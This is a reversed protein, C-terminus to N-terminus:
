SECAAISISYFNGNIGGLRANILAPHRGTPSQFPIVYTTGAEVDARGSFAPESGGQPLRLHIDLHYPGTNEATVLAVFYDFEPSNPVLFDTHWNNRSIVRNEIRKRVETQGTTVEQLLVCPNEMTDAQAVLPDSSAEAPSMFMGPALALSTAVGLTAAFLRQFRIM